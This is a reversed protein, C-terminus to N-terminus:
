LIVMGTIFMLVIAVIVMVATGGGVLALMTKVIEWRKEDM